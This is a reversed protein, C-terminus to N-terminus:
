GGFRQVFEQRVAQSIHHNWLSVHLGRGLYRSNLLARVGADTVAYNLNLDLHRLGALHPVNALRELAEDDLFNDYLNLTRLGALHPNDEIAKVVPLGGRCSCVSLERLRRTKAM